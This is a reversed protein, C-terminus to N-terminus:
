ALEEEANAPMEADQCCESILFAALASIIDFRAVCRLTRGERRQDLVGAQVLARVHHSLTSAAIGVRNQIEGVPLGADGARVLCRLIELRVGSGLGAFAQAVQDPSLTVRDTDPAAPGHSEIEM